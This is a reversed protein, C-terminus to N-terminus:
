RAVFSMRTPSHVHYVDQIRPLLPGTSGDGWGALFLTWCLTAFQLRELASESKTQALETQPAAPPPQSQSSREKDIVSLELGIEEQGDRKGATHMAAHNLSLGAVPTQELATAATTTAM